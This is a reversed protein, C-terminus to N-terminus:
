FDGPPGGSQRISHPVWIVGTINIFLMPYGYIKSFLICRQSVFLYFAEQLMASFLNEPPGEGFLNKDKKKSFDARCTPIPLLIQSLALYTM